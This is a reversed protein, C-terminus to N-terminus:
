HFVDCMSQNVTEQMSEVSPNELRSAFNESWPTNTKLFSETMTSEFPHLILGFAAAVIGVVVGMGMWKKNGTAEKDFEQYPVTDKLQKGDVQFISTM